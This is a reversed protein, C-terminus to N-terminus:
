KLVRLSAFYPPWSLTITLLVSYANLCGHNLDQKRSHSGPGTVKGRQVPKEMLFHLSIYRAPNNHPLSLRKYYTSFLLEKFRKGRELFTWDM